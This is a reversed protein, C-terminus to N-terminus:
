LIKFRMLEIFDEIAREPIQLQIDAINLRRDEFFDKNFVQSINISIKEAIVQSLSHALKDMQVKFYEPPKNEPEITTKCNLIRQGPIYYNEKKDFTNM